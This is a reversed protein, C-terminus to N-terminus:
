RKRRWRSRWTTTPSWREISRILSLAWVVPHLRRGNGTAACLDQRRWGEQSRPLLVEVLPGGKSRGPLDLVAYRGIQLTALYTAMPERQDYTWVTRSSRRETDKLVGNGIVRYAQDAGGPHSLQGQRRPLRQLPVV